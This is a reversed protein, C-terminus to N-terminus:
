DCGLIKRLKNLYIQVKNKDINNIRNVKRLNNLHNNYPSKDIHEIEINEDLIENEYCEWIFRDSRYFKFKGNIRISFVFYGLEDIEQDVLKIKNDRLYYIDGTIPNCIYDEYIPHSFLDLEILPM